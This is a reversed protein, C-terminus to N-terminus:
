NTFMLPVKQYDVDGQYTLLDAWALNGRFFRGHNKPRVSTKQYGNEREPKLLRLHTFMWNVTDIQM